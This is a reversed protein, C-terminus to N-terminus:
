APRPAPVALGHRLLVVLVVFAIPLIGGVVSIWGYHSHLAGASLAAITVSTFVTFDNLAQARAREEPRYCTTLLTTGGVFLFSWGIGVLLLSAWFHALSVGALGIGAAVIYVLAGAFMTKPAGFRRIIQGTVFAPAYMAIVHWQIVFAADSFAFGCDLIALPSAIMVFSMMAYGLSSGLVAVIFTPQAVIESLPRGGGARDAKAPKALSTFSLGVLSLTQLGALALYSGLFLVPTFSDKMWSALNPGLLGSVIGGAMVLSIASARFADTAVEAAAFRYYHIVSVSAGFFFAGVCFLQFSARSIAFAMTIAGALGVCQGAIFGVKRGYRQMLFSAPATSCMVAIFSLAMPLTSWAKDAALTSGVVAASTMMLSAGSMGLAQCVFLLGLNTRMRNM